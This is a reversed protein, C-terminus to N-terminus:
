TRPLILVRARPEPRGPRRWRRGLGRLERCIGQFHWALHRGRVMCALHLLMRGPASETLYLAIMM